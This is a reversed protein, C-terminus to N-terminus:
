ESTPPTKIRTLPIHLPSPIPFPHNGPNSAWSCPEVVYNYNGDVSAKNNDTIPQNSAPVYQCSQCQKDSRKGDTAIFSYTADNERHSRNLKSRELLKSRLRWEEATDQVSRDYKFQYGRIITTGCTDVLNLRGSKITNKCYDM